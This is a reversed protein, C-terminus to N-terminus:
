ETCSEIIWKLYADSVHSAQWVVWQPVEYPHRKHLAAKVAQLRSAPFKLTLRYEASSELKGEWHYHSSIPGEVQACAVLRAEVLARALTDAQEQSAVTTTALLLTDM